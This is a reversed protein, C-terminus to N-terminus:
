MRYFINGREEEPFDLEKEEYFENMVMKYEAQNKIHGKYRAYKLVLISTLMHIKDAISNLEKIKSEVQGEKYPTKGHLFKNRTNLLNKLREPLDINFIDFALLFKDKNFPSNIYNIKKVLSDFESPNFENERNKILTLIEGQITKLNESSKIPAFFTKNESYILGVITELAVHFISCKILPSDIGVGDILLEITRAYEPAKIQLNIIESLVKEPFFLPTLDSPMDSNKLFTRFQSPNILEHNSIISKDLSEYFVSGIKGFSNDSYSFIFQENQHWNGKLLAMSIMSLRCTRQFETFEVEDLNEFVLYQSDSASHRYLHFVSDNVNLVILGLSYNTEDCSYASGLINVTYGSENIERVCRFISKGKIPFTNSHIKGLTGRCENTTALRKSTLRNASRTPITFEKEDNSISFPNNFGIKKFTFQNPFPAKKLQVNFKIFNKTPKKKLIIIAENILFPEEHQVEFTEDNLFSDIEKIENKLSKQYKEKM